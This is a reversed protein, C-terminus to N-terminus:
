RHPSGTFGAGDQPNQKAPVQGIGSLSYEIPTLGVLIVIEGEPFQFRWKTFTAYEDDRYAPEWHVGFL